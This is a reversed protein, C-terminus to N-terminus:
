LILRTLQVHYRECDEKFAPSKFYNFEYLRSSAIPDITQPNFLAPHCMILEQNKVQRLFRIFYQRYNVADQFPYIGSFTQNYPIKNIKLQRQLRAAGTLAIIKSKIGGGERQISIRVYTERGLLPQEYMKLLAERVIPLHHIHQHGDIFNPLRQVHKNFQELQLLLEQEVDAVKIFGGYAKAMLLPLSLFSGRPAITSNKKGLPQGETLNFHLGLDAHERYPHLWPAHESWCSSTTMCSVATLRGMTLLHIIGQSIAKNMGYDDACLTIFKM